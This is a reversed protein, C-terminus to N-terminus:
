FYSNINVKFEKNKYDIPFYFAWIDKGGGDMRYAWLDEAITKKIKETGSPGIYIGYVNLNNLGLTNACSRWAACSFGPM